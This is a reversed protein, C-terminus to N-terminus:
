LGRPGEQGRKRRRLALGGRKRDLVLRPAVPRVDMGPQHAMANAEGIEVAVRTLMTERQHALGHARRAIARRAVDHPEVLVHELHRAPGLLVALPEIPHADEARWRRRLWPAPLDVAMVEVEVAENEAVLEHEGGAEHTRLRHQRAGAFVGARAHELDLLLLTERQHARQRYGLLRARGDPLIQRTLQETRREGVVPPD